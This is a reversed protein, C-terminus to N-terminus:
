RSRVNDGEGDAVEMVSRKVGPFDVFIDSGRCRVTVVNQLGVGDVAVM